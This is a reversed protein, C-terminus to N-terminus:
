FVNKANRGVVAANVGVHASPGNQVFFGNFVVRLSQCVHAHQFLLEVTTGFRCYRCTFVEGCLKFFEEAFLVLGESTNEAGYTDSIAVNRASFFM